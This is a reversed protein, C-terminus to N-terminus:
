RSPIVAYVAEVAAQPQSGAILHDSGPVIRWVGRSSRSALSRHAKQMLPQVVSVAASDLSPPVLGQSSEASLVVLPLDARLPAARAFDDRTQSYGHVIGCLTEWVGPRYSVAASRARVESASPAINFPDALRILGLHAAAPVALCGAKLRGWPLREADALLVSNGADLLVLAAVREPHRRALLEATFGGVSSAVVVAPAGPSVSDLVRIADDALTGISLPDPGPDSWGAGARDYSCVRVRRALTERAEPFSLSNGFASPEFVVVPSGSGICVVHLKRGGVDVFRGPPPFRRADAAEARKEYVWGGVGALLVIASAGLAARSYGRM